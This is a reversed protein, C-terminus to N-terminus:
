PYVTFGSVKTVNACYCFPFFTLGAAYILMGACAHNAVQDMTSNQPQQFMYDLQGLMNSELTNMQPNLAAGQDVSGIDNLFMAADHYLDFESLGDYDEVTLDDAPKKSVPFAPDPDLNPGILDDM